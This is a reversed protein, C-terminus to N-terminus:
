YIGVYTMSKNIFIVIKMVIYNDISIILYEINAFACVCVCLCFACGGNCNIKDVFKLTFVFLFINHKVHFFFKGLFSFSFLCKSFCRAFNEGVFCFFFSIECDLCFTTKMYNDLWYGCMAHDSWWWRDFLNKHDLGGCVIMTRM